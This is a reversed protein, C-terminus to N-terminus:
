IYEEFSYDVSISDKVKFSDVSEGIKEEEIVEEIKYNAIKKNVIMIKQNRIIESVDKKERKKDFSIPPLKGVKNKEDSKNNNNM